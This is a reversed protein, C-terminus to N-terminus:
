RTKHCKCDPDHVVGLGQVDIPHSFRIYSHDNYKFMIAKGFPVEGKVSVETVLKQECSCMLIGLIAVLIIRITNFTNM